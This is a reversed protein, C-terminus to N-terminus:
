LYRGYAENTRESKDITVDAPPDVKTYGEPINLSNRVWGVQCSSQWEDVPRAANIELYQEAKFGGTLGDVGCDFLLLREKHTTTDDSEPKKIAPVDNIEIELIGGNKAFYKRVAKAKEGDNALNTGLNTYVVKQGTKDFLQVRGKGFTNYRAYEYAKPYREFWTRMTPSFPNRIYQNVEFQWWQRLDHRIMTIQEHWILQPTDAFSAFMAPTYKLRFTGCVNHGYTNANIPSHTCSINIISWKGM